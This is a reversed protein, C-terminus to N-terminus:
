RILAQREEPPVPAAGHALNRVLPTDGTPWEGIGANVADDGEFVLWSYRGYHPLKRALAGAAAATPAAVYVVVQAPDGPHRVAAVLSRMGAAGATVAPWPAAAPDLSAGYAALAEAVAPALRNDRGLVWVARGAPLADVDADSVTDVGDGALSAALGAYVAASRAPVVVLARGAGFAKSLAPPVEFLSLRRCLDFAPDIEVRLPAAALSLHAHTRAAAASMAVVRREIGASTAIAVPVDLEFARGGQVQVLTIDLDTGSVEAAELRLEPVGTSRVWQEFFPRLDRGTEAEFSREIDNWSAVRFRYDRYFVRLARVFAADGTKLRLMHWTMATKSYGIAESAADSRSVFRSPPFDNAPTIYDTIRQLLARRHAAGGGRREAVLHDALYATLGESWNGSARDVFVGNGWWDHLLEHPYSIDLIFPLRIVREGLLTFSPMGWGTEAFNEVVAFKAYPYPGLLDGYTALYKATADLYRGALAADPTRLFAMTTVGDADRSYESFPAAILHVDESPTTVTWTETVGAGDTETRSTREGESVSRWGAPLEVTLSFTVPGDGAQPVWRTSGALWAGRRGITGPSEPFPSAHERVPYDVIGAYDVDVNTDQGPVAGDVAYFRVPPAGDGDAHVQQPVLRPGAATVALDANLALTLRAAVLGGPIRIRDHAALRHGAPDLRVVLDHHVMPPSETAAAPAAVGCLLAVVPVAVPLCANM